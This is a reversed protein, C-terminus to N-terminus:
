TSTDPGTDKDWYGNLTSPTSSIGNGHNRCRAVPVRDAQQNMEPQGVVECVVVTLLQSLRFVQLSDVVTHGAKEVDLKKQEHDEPSRRVHEKVRRLDYGLAQALATGWYLWGLVM